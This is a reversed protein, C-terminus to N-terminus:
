RTKQFFEMWEGDPGHFFFYKSGNPLTTFENDILKVGLNKIRKFEVKASYYNGLVQQATLSL